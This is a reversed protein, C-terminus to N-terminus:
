FNGVPNYVMEYAPDISVDEDDSAIFHTEVHEMFEEFVSEKSYIRGCMPCIRDCNNLADAKRKTEIFNINSTTNLVIDVFNSKDTTTEEPIPKSPNSQPDDKAQDDIKTTPKQKSACNSCVKIPKRQKLKDLVAKLAVQQRDAEEKISTMDETLKKYEQIDNGNQNNGESIAFKSVDVLLDAPDEDKNFKERLKPNPNNQTFTKSRILNQHTNTPSGPDLKDQQQDFNENNKTLKSLRSWLQRNEAAVMTIHESLQQKQRTLENNKERLMALETQVSYEAAPDVPSANVCRSRLELNEEEM